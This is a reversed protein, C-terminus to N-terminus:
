IDLVNLLHLYDKITLGGRWADREKFYEIEKDTYKIDVSLSYASLIELAREATFPYDRKKVKSFEFPKEKEKEMVRKIAEQYDNNHKHTGSEIHALEHRLAKAMDEDILNPNLKILEGVTSGVEVTPDLVVVHPYGMNRVHDTLISARDDVTTAERASSIDVREDGIHQYHAEMQIDGNIPAQALANILRYNSQLQRNGDTVITRNIGALENQVKIGTLGIAKMVQGTQLSFQEMVGSLQNVVNFNDIIKHMQDLVRNKINHRLVFYGYMDIKALFSILFQLWLNISGKEISASDLSNKEKNFEAELLDELREKKAKYAEIKPNTPEELVTKKSLAKRYLKMNTNAWGQVRSVLHNKGNVKIYKHKKQNAHDVMAQYKEGKVRYAEAGLEIDNLQANYRNMQASLRKQESVISQSVDKIQGELKVTTPTKVRMVIEKNQQTNVTNKLDTYVLHGYTILLTLATGIIFTTVRTIINETSNLINKMFISSIIEVASAFIFILPMILWTPVEWNQSISHEWVYFGVGYSLLISIIKMGWAFYISINAVKNTAGPSSVDKMTKLRNILSKHFETGSRFGYESEIEDSATLRNVDGLAAEERRQRTNAKQEERFSSWRKKLSM